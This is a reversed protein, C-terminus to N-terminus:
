NINIFILNIIIIIFAIITTTLAFLFYAFYYCTIVFSNRTAYYAVLIGDSTIKGNDYEDATKDHKQQQTNVWM